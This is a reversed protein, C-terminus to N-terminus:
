PKDEVSYATQRWVISAGTRHKAYAKALSLMAVLGGLPYSWCLWPRASVLKYFRAIVSIQMAAAACGALAPALWVSGDSSAGWMAWGLAAVVYPMLGMLGMIALSIRLRRKTGFTAFFIRCWGDLIERLSTYMRVVYLGDNQVVRLRHGAQKVRKALFMDDMLRSKVAEHGGVDDYVSRRMLMFAGNAYAEPCDPSNVKDPRYWFMMIGGCVPQVVNEWFGVMKLNPLVSLMDAKQDIAHQVAVSLTRPSLYRCDADTTCLWQGTAQTVANWLAHNKGAWGEPLETMELLTVRDDGEAIQRILPGTDDTSRDNIVIIELNPYDQQLVSQLCAAINAQEDKAAILVSLRPAEAPPGPHDGGLSTNDRRARSIVLHRVSWVLFVLGCLVTLIAAVISM